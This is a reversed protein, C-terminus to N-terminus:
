PHKWFLKEFFVALIFLPILITRRVSHLYLIDRKPVKEINWHKRYSSRKRVNGAYLDFLGEIFVIMKAHVRKSYRNIWIQEQPSGLGIFFYDPSAKGIAMVINEHDYKRYDGRYRGVVFLRPIERLLNTYARDITQGKGGFLYVNKSLEVSQAMLRKVFVSPDIQEKLPRKLFRTAWVLYRGCPIILDSEELFIRLMKNRKAMLLLPFSLFVLSHTKGDQLLHEVRSLAEESEMNNYPVGLIRDRKM